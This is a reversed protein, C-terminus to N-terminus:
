QPSRFIRLGLGLGLGLDLSRGLCVQDWLALLSLGVLEVEGPIKDLGHEVEAVTGLVVLVSDVGYLMKLRVWSDLAFGMILVRVVVVFGGNRRRKLCNGQYCGSAGM